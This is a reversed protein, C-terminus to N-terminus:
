LVTLRLFRLRRAATRRLHNTVVRARNRQLSPPMGNAIPCFYNSCDGAFWERRLPEEETLTVVLGVDLADRMAWIQEEKKPTSSVLVENPWLWCLSQSLVIAGDGHLLPEKPLVICAM